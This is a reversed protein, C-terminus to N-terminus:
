MQWTMRHPIALTNVFTLQHLQAKLQAGLHAFPIFILHHGFSHGVYSISNYDFYFLMAKVKQLTM